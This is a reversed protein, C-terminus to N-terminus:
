RNEAAVPKSWAYMRTADRVRLFGKYAAIVRIERVRVSDGPPPPRMRSAWVRIERVRKASLM